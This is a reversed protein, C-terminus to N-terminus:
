KPEAFVHQNVTHADIYGWDYEVGLGPGDPVPFCGDAGVAELDDSYGCAYVPAIPNRVHPHVLSLEYFNTNRIAAICHRQAPGAAHLEVDMGFAEALTAIKM